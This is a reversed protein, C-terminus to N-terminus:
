PMPNNVPSDNTYLDVADLGPHPLLLLHPSAPVAQPLVLRYWVAQRGALPMVHKAVVQQGQGADFRRIVAAIDLSGTPDVLMQADVAIVDASM